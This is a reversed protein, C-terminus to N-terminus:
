KNITKHNLRSLYKGPHIHEYRLVFIGYVGLLLTNVSLRLWLPESGLLQSIGFLGLGVAFYMFIAKLNYPIPYYKLGMFYSVVIMVVYSLLRSWAAAYCGYVPMFFIDLIVTVVLGLITIYIAFRTHESLKYWMSLNFSVGLLINSLLVIPLVAMESRFDKGLILALIDTYFVIGLFLLMCFAVFYKMVDAYTEKMNVKNVSAFFFPEAAYRFMQVFLTIIVALKMIASYIGLQDIWPSTAPSCYRFLIRDVYDNAVGPLGAIMLPLSYIMLKKWQESSFRLPTRLIDPLFLILSVFGSLLIALLIYGYDPHAPILNHLFSGPHRTMWSPAWFFLLLNFGVESLIKISKYLAFLWAKNDFRLKAFFISTFCDMALILAVYKLYIAPHGMSTGIMGSFIFVLVLFLGSSILLWTMSTSFLVGANERDKNAFRFYGTELGFILVVQLLAIYALLESALGYNGPTLMRTYIPVFFFNIFRAIISSFGYIATQSALQKIQSM